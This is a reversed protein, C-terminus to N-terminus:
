PFLSGRLIVNACLFYIILGAVDVITAVFPTSGTAEDFGLRKLGIPLMSGVLTGVIVVGVVATGIALGYHLSQGLQGGENQFLMYSVSTAAVMGCLGLASGLMLGSFIERRLVLAWDAPEIERTALSRIILSAAQSGSNGGSAIILPVFLALIAFERISEEFAGMASVTLLGGGFLIMLWIVRKRFLQVVTSSTYPADLAEMGGMKQMDETVEEEAVDAVDDFTVIGVMRDDDDVVPLVPVDYREMMHVATERDDSAKLYILQGGQRLTECLVDPQALLIRRLRIVDILRGREDVVYLVNFSEADKGHGRIHDLAEAVTWEPHVTLYDPTMERGVSEEPYELIKETEAREAPHMAALLSQALDDPADELFDVRDDADMENFISAVQETTLTTVLREQEDQDLHSFVEAARERPLLRLAVVQHPPSLELLLDAIEPDYLDVLVHRVQGMKRQDILESVEPALLDGM